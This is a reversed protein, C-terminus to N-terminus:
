QKFKFKSNEYKQIETDNTFTQLKGLYITTSGNKLEVDYKENPKFYSINETITIKLKQGVEFTFNPNKIEGTMERRLLLTLVDNSKPYVRPILYFELPTTIKLVKM